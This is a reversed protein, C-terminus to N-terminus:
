FINCDSDETNNEDVEKVKIIEHESQCFDCLIKEGKNLKHEKSCMECILHQISKKYLKKNVQSDSFFIRYYNNGNNFMRFCKMCKWKWTNKIIRVLYEVIDSEKNKEGFEILKMYDNVRNKYGCVCYSYPFICKGPENNEMVICAKKIRKNFFEKFCEKSCFKCGCPTMFYVKDEQINFGCYFCIQSKTEKWLDNFSFNCNSSEFIEGLSVDKILSINVKKQTLYYKIQQHTDSNVDVRQLYFLYFTLMESKLQNELCKECLGFVNEKGTYYEHCQLCKGKNFNQTYYNTSSNSNTNNNEEETLERHSSSLFFEDYQSDNKKNNNDTHHENKNEYIKLKDAFKEYYDKCYVIDYHAKRFLLELINKNNKIGCKILKEDILSNDSFDYIILRLDYNFVFPTVYIDIKEAFNKMKMLHNEYYKEFLHEDKDTIYTDPLFCGISVQYEESYIKDENAKIYEYLLFRTFFIVCEDFPECFLFVQILTKYPNLGNIKEDDMSCTILYLIQITLDINLKKVKNYLYKKEKILPNNLSIKEYFTVLIEKMLMINGTLIINELFYFIVGRYFCDGDGLISRFKEVLIELKKKDDFMVQKQFADTYFSNEIMYDLSSITGIRYYDYSNNKYAASLDNKQISQILNLVQRKNINELLNDLKQEIILINEDNLYDWKRCKLYDKPSVKNIIKDKIKEKDIEINACSKLLDCNKNEQLVSKKLSFPDVNITSNFLYDYGEDVEQDNKNM